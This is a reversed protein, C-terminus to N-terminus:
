ANEEIAGVQFKLTQCDMEHAASRIIDGHM